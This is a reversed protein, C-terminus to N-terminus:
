KINTKHVAEHKDLDNQLRFKKDCKSCSFPKNGEHSKRHRNLESQSDFKKDCDNCSFIGQTHVKEHLKLACEQAFKEDCHSCKYQENNTHITEHVTLDNTRLIMDCKVCSLPGSEKDSLDEKHQVSNDSIRAANPAASHNIAEIDKYFGTESDRTASNAIPHDLEEM